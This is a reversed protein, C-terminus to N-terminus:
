RVIEPRAESTASERAWRSCRGVARHAAVTGLPTRGSRKGNRAALPSYATKRPRILGSLPGTHAMSAARAAPMGSTIAALHRSSPSTSYKSRATAGRSPPSTSHIPSTPPLRLASSRAPARQRSNGMSQSSGKPRTIISAM